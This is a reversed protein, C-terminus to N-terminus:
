SVNWLMSLMFICVSNPQLNLNIDASTAGIPFSLTARDTGLISSISTEHIRGDTYLAEWEIEVETLTGGARLVTITGSPATDESLTLSSTSLSFIGGPNDNAAITVM